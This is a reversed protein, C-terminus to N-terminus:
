EKIDRLYTNERIGVANLVIDDVDLCIDAYKGYPCLGIDFAVKKLKEMNEASLIFYDFTTDYGGQKYEM